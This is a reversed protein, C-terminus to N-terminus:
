RLQDAKMKSSSLSVDTFQQFSSPSAAEGPSLSNSKKKLQSSQKLWKHFVYFGFPILYSSASDSNSKWIHLVAAKQKLLPLQLPLNGSAKSDSLVGSYRGQIIVARPLRLSFKLDLPRWMLKEMKGGQARWGERKRKKVERKKRNRKQQPIPM